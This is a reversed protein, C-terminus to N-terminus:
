YNCNSNAESIQGSIRNLSILRCQGSVRSSAVMIEVVTPLESDVEYEVQDLYILVKGTPPEFTVDFFKSDPDEFLVGDIRYSDIYINDKGIYEDIVLYDDTADDYVHNSSTDGFLQYREQSSIAIGYGGRPVGKICGTGGCYTDDSCPRLENAASGAQCFNVSNGGISYSQALRLHQLLDTGAARLEQVRRGHQFNAMVVITLLGIIAIVILLETLTFGRNSFRKM